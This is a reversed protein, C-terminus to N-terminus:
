FCGTKSKKGTTPGYEQEDWVVNSSEERSMFDEVLRGSLFNDRTILEKVSVVRYNIPCGREDRHLRLWVTHSEQRNSDVEPFVRVVNTAWDEIEVWCDLAASLYIRWPAHAPPTAPTGPPLSANTVATITAATIQGVGTVGSYANLIAQAQVLIDLPPGLYGRVVIVDPPIGEGQVDDVLPSSIPRPALPM